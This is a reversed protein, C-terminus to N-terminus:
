NLDKQSFDYLRLNKLALYDIQYYQDCSRRGKFGLREEKQNRQYFTNISKILTIEERVENEKKPKTLLSKITETGPELKLNQQVKHKLGEQDFM